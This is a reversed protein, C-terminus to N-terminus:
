DVWGRRDMREIVAKQRRTLRSREIGARKLPDSGPAHIGQGPAFGPLMRQLRAVDSRSLEGRALMRELPRMRDRPGPRALRRLMRRARWRTRLLFRGVRTRRWVSRAPRTQAHKHVAPARGRAAFAPTRALAPATWSGALLGAVLALRLATPRTCRTM